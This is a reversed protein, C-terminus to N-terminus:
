VMTDDKNVGEWIYKSYNATVYDLVQGITYFGTKIDADKAYGDKNTRVVM